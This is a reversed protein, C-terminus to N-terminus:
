RSWLGQLLGLNHQQRKWYVTRMAQDEAGCIILEPMRGESIPFAYSLVSHIGSGRHCSACTDLVTAQHQELGGFQHSREFPDIGHANFVTFEKDEPGILVRGCYGDEAPLGREIHSVQFYRAMM